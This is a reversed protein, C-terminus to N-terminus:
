GVEVHKSTIMYLAKHSVRQYSESTGKSVEAGPVYLVYLLSILPGLALLSM